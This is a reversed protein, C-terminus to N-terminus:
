SEVTCPPANKAARRAASAVGAAIEDLTWDEALAQLRIDSPTLSLALALLCLDKGIGAQRAIESLTWGRNALIRAAAGIQLMWEALPVTPPTKQQM